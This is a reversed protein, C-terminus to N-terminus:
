GLRQGGALVAVIVIGYLVFPLVLDTALERAVGRARDRPTPCDQCM